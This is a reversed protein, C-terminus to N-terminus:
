HPTADQQLPTANQHLRDGTRTPLNNSPPRQPAQDTSPHATTPIQPLDLQDLLQDEPHQTLPRMDRRRKLTTPALDQFLQVLAGEVEVPSDRAAKMIREKIHYFHLRVIIDRPTAMNTSPARLARHARDMLLDAPTADPLLNKFVTEETAAMKDEAAQARASLDAMNELILCLRKELEDAVSQKFDALFGRMDSRTLPAETRESHVQSSMESDSDTLPAESSPARAQEPKQRFIPAVASNRAKERGGM